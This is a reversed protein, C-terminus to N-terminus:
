AGRCRRRQRHPPSVPGGEEHVVGVRLLQAAGEDAGALALCLLAFGPLAFSAVVFAVLHLTYSALALNSGVSESGRACWKRACWCRQEWAHARLLWRLACSVVAVRQVRVLHREVWPAKPDTAPKVYLQGEKIATSPFMSTRRSKGGPGRPKAGLVPEVRM